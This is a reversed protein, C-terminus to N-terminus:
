CFNSDSSQRPPATTTTAIRGPSKRGHTGTVYNEIDDLLNLCCGRYTVRGESAADVSAHRYHRPCILLIIREAIEQIDHSSHFSSTRCADPSEYQIEHLYDSTIDAGGWENTEQQEIRFRALRVIREKHCTFTAMWGAPTREAKFFDQLALRTIRNVIWADGRYAIFKIGDSYTLEGSFELDDHMSPGSM